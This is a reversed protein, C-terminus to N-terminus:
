LVKYDDQMRIKLNLARGFRVETQKKLKKSTQRIKDNELQKNLNKMYFLSEIM